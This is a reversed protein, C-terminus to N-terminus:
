SLKGARFAELVRERAHRRAAAPEPRKGRRQENRVQALTM